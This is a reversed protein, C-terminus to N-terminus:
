EDKHKRGRSPALLSGSHDSAKIAGSITTAFAFREKFDEFCPECVWRGDRTVYGRDYEENTRPQNSMRAWCFECHDHDGGDHASWMASRLEVGELMTRLSEEQGELRWDHDDIVQSVNGDLSQVGFSLRIFERHRSDSV